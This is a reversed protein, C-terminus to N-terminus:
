CIVAESPANININEHTSLVRAHILAFIFLYIFSDSEIVTESTGHREKM